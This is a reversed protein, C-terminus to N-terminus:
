EEETFIPRDTQPAKCVPCKANREVWKTICEEHYVHKCRLEVLKEDEEFECYCITCLDKENEPKNKNDGQYTIRKLNKIEDKTLGVERPAQRAAMLELLNFFNM